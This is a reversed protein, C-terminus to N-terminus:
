KDFTLLYLFQNIDALIDDRISLIDSDRNDFYINMDKLFDRYEFMRNKIEKTSNYNLLNIRKELLKVRTQDKGLLVEVFKDIDSNLKSYLEDTAKHQAYSHTKWHYLKVTNLMEIFIKVIHSTKKDSISRKKMTRNSRMSRRKSKRDTAM